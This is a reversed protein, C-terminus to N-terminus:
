IVLYILIVKAKIPQNTKRYEEPFWVIYEMHGKNQKLLTQRHTDKAVTGKCDYPQGGYIKNM